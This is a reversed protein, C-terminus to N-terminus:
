TTSSNAFLSILSSYFKGRNIMDISQGKNSMDMVDTRCEESHSSPSHDSPMQALRDKKRALDAM